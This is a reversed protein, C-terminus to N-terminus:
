RDAPGIAPIIQHLDPRACCITFGPHQACEESGSLPCFYRGDCCPKPQEPTPVDGHIQAAHWAAFGTATRADDFNRWPKRCRACDFGWAGGDSLPELLSLYSPLEARGRTM